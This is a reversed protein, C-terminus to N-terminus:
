QIDLQEFRQERLQRTYLQHYAGKQKMLAEHSGQEAIQGKKILLIRDCNKITSLRHAIVIATRGRLMEDIGKQIQAETITDISATAEDMIFIRPNALIARAFSLLQQEGISLNGGSEGVKEELRNVFQLAGVKKLAERIEDESANVSGFQLNEKITGAFLHPTQLVVGLQNRFRQLQITTYDIDDILIQGGTPEYFRGVLNIITSKGEGTAGVLAISQGAPITLDFNELVQKKQDYSFSVNRFEIKGEITDVAKAGPQDKITVPEDLLSFIREGASLSGQALAYFGSIDMIPLFIRTAYEFSAVLVGITIGTTTSIAMSGGWYIVLTAAVSGIFIVLPMYMASYYSSRFSAHKMKNSLQQFALSVREEQSTSKIVEVGNIHESYAATIESNIKRSLRSYKLVLMRIRVSLLLMIPISLLVILALKWSYIFMATMCFFIMTVGWIADLLGWSIVECVRDTDSTIRTLLWGSASRDYFSFSLSQLKRFLDGRLRFLVHEQLNGAYRIFMYVGLVQAFGLAFYAAGYGYLNSFDPQFEVGSEQSAKFALVAPNVVHDIIGLLILPFVADVIAVVITWISFGIMWNKHKFAYLFIRKLFPWLAGKTEFKQDQM